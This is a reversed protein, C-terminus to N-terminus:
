SDAPETDDTASAGATKEPETRFWEAAITSVRFTRGEHERDHTRHEGRVAVLKGKKVHKAAGEALPGWVDVTHWDTRRERGSDVSKFSRHTALTFTAFPHGAAEKLQADCGARGVLLVLNLEVNM